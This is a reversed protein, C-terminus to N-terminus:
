KKIIKVSHNAASLIYIGAPQAALDLTTLGEASASASLVKAGKLNTVTVTQGEALGSIHVPGSTQAPWVAIEDAKALARVASWESNVLIRDIKAYDFSESQGDTLKLTVAETGLEIRDLDKIAEQRQTGDTSIVVVAKDNAAAGSLSTAALFLTCLLKIKM